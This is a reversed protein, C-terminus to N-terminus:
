ATLWRSRLSTSSTKPPPRLRDAPQALTAEHAARAGLQVHQV